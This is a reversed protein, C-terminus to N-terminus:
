QLAFNFVLIGQAKVPARSVEVPKFEWQKAARVAADRLMQHGSIAKAEIVNGSESVTIEVHVPGEAGAAKAEAPYNPQAKKTASGDLVGTSLRIMKPAPAVSM